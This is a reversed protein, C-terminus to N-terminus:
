PHLFRGMFSGILGAAGAGGVIWWRFNELTRVREELQEGDQKLNKQGEAMSDKLQGFERVLNKLNVGTEIIERRDAPTFYDSFGDPM